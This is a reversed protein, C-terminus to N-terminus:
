KLKGEALYQAFARCADTATFIGCLIGADEILASGIHQDSMYELVEQLPTERDVVYVEVQCIDQVKTMLAFDADTNVSQALKLDRDSLMGYLEGHVTVPLHRIGYQAMTKKAEEVPAEGEITYPLVTMVEDITPKKSM